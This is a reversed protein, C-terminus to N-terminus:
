KLSLSAVAREGEHSRARFAAFHLREFCKRWHPATLRLQLRPASLAKRRVPALVVPLITFGLFGPEKAIGRRPPSVVLTSHDVVKTSMGANVAALGVDDYKLEIVKTVLRAVDSAHQAPSPSPGRDLTFDRFTFDAACVTM